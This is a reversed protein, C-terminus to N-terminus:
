ASCCDAYHYADTMGLQSNGAVIAGMASATATSGMASAAPKSAETASPAPKTSGMATATTGM